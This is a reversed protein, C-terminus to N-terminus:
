LSLAESCLYFSPNLHETIVLVRNLHCEDSWRQNELSITKNRSEIDFSMGYLIMDIKKINIM